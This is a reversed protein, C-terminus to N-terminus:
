PTKVASSSQGASYQDGTYIFYAAAAVFVFFVVTYGLTRAIHTNM